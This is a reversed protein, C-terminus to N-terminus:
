TVLEMEEPARRDTRAEVVGLLALAAVVLVCGIWGIATIPEHLVVVGLVTAVAPEFLTLTAIHGPQLANLGVGFLLYAVTTTVIGLWLVLLIGDLSLWWTSTFAAPVLFLAGLTFSAALTDGGTFGERALRVGLVTFVAYCAGAAFASAMGLADGDALSGSVLLVLGTVAVATSLAWLWGPAGERLAWGLLGALFPASGLAILAAVAVGTRATAIFFFAQYGAVGVGMAWVVPRRWLRILQGGRGRWLSWAVLGVSGVILRMAAVGTGPAGPVLLQRSTGTTGFLAAAGLVALAARPRSPPHREDTM